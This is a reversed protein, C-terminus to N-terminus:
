IRPYALMPNEILGVVKGLFGAAYGGDCVRHDFALSIQAIRRAVIEGGVVWPREIIRGTGLIAVEPHNIIAASGDVGFGGYNNLTFTSGALRAPALRGTRAEASLDRLATDLEAISLEGARPLVPVSLGRESDVAIGLNVGDYTMLETGDDSLRSALLPYEQLAILVFRAILTTISPAREGAAAMQPRLAWLETFDVDVWVTAEPIESRSRSMKASVAKRLPSLRESSALHLGHLGMIPDGSPAAAIGVGGPAADAGATGHAGAILDTGATGTTGAIVATSNDAALLVDRRTVAGDHGTAMVTRPDIGLEKALRRVIPSRVAVPRLPDATTTPRHSAGPAPPPTPAQALSPAAAPALPSTAATAPALALARTSDTGPTVGVQTRDSAASGRRKRRGKAALNGTGYGILVNGSGSGAREESRYTELEVRDEGSAPDTADSASVSDDADGVELVPSGTLVAEGEAGHLALVTGAYPSPLEVISKATEVEAIAQDIKITDGVSVLWSVIVAETLGEGLDPLLFVKAAM